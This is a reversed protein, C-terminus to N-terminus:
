TKTKYVDKATKEEIYKLRPQNFLSRVAYEKKM